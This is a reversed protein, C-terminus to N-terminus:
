HLTSSSYKLVTEFSLLPILPRYAATTLDVLAVSCSLYQYLRPAAAFLLFVSAIQQTTTTKSSSTLFDSPLKPRQVDSTTLPLLSSSTQPPHDSSSSSSWPQSQGAGPVQCRSVVLACLRPLRHTFKGVTVSRLLVHLRYLTSAALQLM